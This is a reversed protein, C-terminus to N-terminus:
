VRLGKVFSLLGSILMPLAFVMAIIAVAIAALADFISALFAPPFGHLFSVIFSVALSCILMFLLRTNSWQGALALLVMAVLKLFFLASLIGAATGKAFFGFAVMYAITGFPAALLLGVMLMLASFALLALIICAIMDILGAFFLVANQVRVYIAAFRILYLSSTTTALSLLVLADLLASYSIGLGPPSPSPRDKGVVQAADIKPEDPGTAQEGIGAVVDASSPAPPPFLTGSGLELAVVFLYALTAFLLLLKPHM